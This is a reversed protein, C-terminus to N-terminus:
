FRSKEVGRVRGLTGGGWKVECLGMVLVMGWMGHVKMGM